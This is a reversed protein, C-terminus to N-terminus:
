SLQAADYVAVAEMRLPPTGSTILEVVSDHADPTFYTEGCQECVLAPLNEIVYWQEQYRQVRTVTRAKLQILTV